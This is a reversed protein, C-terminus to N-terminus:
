CINVLCESRDPSSTQIKAKQRLTDLLHDNPPQTLPQFLILSSFDSVATSTPPPHNQLGRAEVRLSICLWQLTKLLFLLM